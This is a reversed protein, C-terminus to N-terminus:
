EIFGVILYATLILALMILDKDAKFPAKYDKYDRMNSDLKPKM